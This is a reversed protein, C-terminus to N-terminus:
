AMDKMDFTFIVNTEIKYITKKISVFYIYVYVTDDEKNIKEHMEIDNPETHRSRKSTGVNDMTEFWPEM